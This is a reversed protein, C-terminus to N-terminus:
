RLTDIPNWLNLQVNMLHFTSRPHCSHIWCRNDTSLIKFHIIRDIRWFFFSGNAKHIHLFSCWFWSQNLHHASHLPPFFQTGDFVLVMKRLILSFISLSASIIMSVEAVSKAEFCADNVYFLSLAGISQFVVIWQPTAKTRHAQRRFDSEIINRSCLLKHGKTQSGRECVCVRM